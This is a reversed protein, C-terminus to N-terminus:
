GTQDETPLPAGKVIISVSMSDQLSGDSVSFRANYVGKTTYSPTWSFTKTSSSFTAGAPLQDARYTLTVTDFDMASITFTLPYTEAAYQTIMVNFIPAYNAKIGPILSPEAVVITVNQYTTLGSSDRASFNLNYTGSQNYAPTWIFEGTSTNFTARYPLSSVNLTLSDNGLDFADVTFNLALGEQVGQPELPVFEPPVNVDTVTINVVHYVILSGDTASFNLVYKGAQLYTPIWRFKGTTANFTSNFPLSTVNGYIVTNGDPDSASLNISLLGNEATTRNALAAFDPPRNVNFITIKMTALTPDKGDTAYFTITYTGNQQYSPTWSFIGASTVFAGTPLATYSGYTITDGDPDVATLTFTLPTNESGVKDPLSGFIPARNLNNVTIFFIVYAKKVGDSASINISYKGAQDYDPTWTFVGTGSNISAGRPLPTGSGYSVPDGDPDTASLTFTLFSNETVTRDSTSTFVPARNVNIVTISVNLYDTLGGTDTVFFKAVYNGARTYDPTWQFTLSTGFLTVSGGSPADIGFFSIDNDPDTATVTFTLTSGELVSQAPVPNFVPPYSPTVTPTPTAGCDGICIYDTSQVPCILLVALLVIALAILSIRGRGDKRM